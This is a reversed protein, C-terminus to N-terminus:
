YPMKMKWLKLSEGLGEVVKKKDVIRRAQTLGQLAGMIKKRNALTKATQLKLVDAEQLGLLGSLAVNGYGLYESLRGQKRGIDYERQDLDSYMKFRRRKLDLAEERSKKLTAANLAAIKSRMEDSAFARDAGASTFIARQWPQMAQLRQIVRQYRPSNIWDPM